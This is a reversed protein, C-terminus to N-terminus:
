ECHETSEVTDFVVTKPSAYQACEIVIDTKTDNFVAVMSTNWYSLCDNLFYAVAWQGCVIHNCKCNHETSYFNSDILLNWSENRNEHKHSKIKLMVSAALM